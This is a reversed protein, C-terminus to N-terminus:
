CITIKIPVDVYLCLSKRFRETQSFIIAHMDIFCTWLNNERSTEVVNPCPWEAHELLM